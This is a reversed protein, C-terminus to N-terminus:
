KRYREAEFGEATIPCGDAWAPLTTMIEVMEDVSGFNEPVECIIEDHVRGVVAYDVKELKMVAAVLIDRATGQTVNNALSGGYTHQEEWKRTYSNVGWFFLTPKEAGWPTTVDKISPFPFCIKRESPLVCWLFSGAKKFRVNRHAGAYTITGPSQVAAIAAEELEYWFAKIKPNAERYVVISKEAMEKDIKIKQKYCTAQFKPAGMGYGCGLVATKGLNRRPDKKDISAVPVDYIRAAMTEYVKGGTAFLHVLDDQGALWALVRAEIANYDAAILKNGPAARVLGRICDAVAVLPHDFLMEVLDCDGTSVADIVDSTNKFIPKSFNQPQIRRGGDRGTSAAHYMLLGKCRGDASMGAFFADIKAVSAKAAEQRIELVERVVPDLDDRMLLDELEDKAISDTELGRERVFAIIQSVSNCGTVAYDTVRAMRANSRALADVAVKKAAKALDVDLYLGRDNIVVDTWWFEQEFPSLEILRGDLAREVETDTACYSYLREFKEPDTWWTLPERKRPKSLQQMVRGGAADKRYDIGTAAAADDLKGPLAMAMAKAMTDRWQRTEVAPWGYRPVMIHRWCLREFNANYARITGGGTVHEWLEFPMEEGPKWVAVPGDDIAWSMCMVDSTPDEFYRHAGAKKLDVTSRTEFDIRADSM